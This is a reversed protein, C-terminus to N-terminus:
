TCLMATRCGRTTSGPETTSALPTLSWRTERGNELPTDGGPLTSILDLGTRGLKRGLQSQGVGTIATTRELTIM